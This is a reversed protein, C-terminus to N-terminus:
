LDSWIPNHVISACGRPDGILRPEFGGEYFELFTLQTFYFVVPDKDVSSLSLPPKREDVEQSTKFM